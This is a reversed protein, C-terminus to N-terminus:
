RERLVEVRLNYKEFQGDSWEYPVKNESILDIIEVMLKITPIFNYRIEYENDEADIKLHALKEHRRKQKVGAIMKSFLKIKEEIDIKNPHANPIEPIAKKFSHVGKRDDDFKCIRILLDNEITKLCITQDVYNSRSMQSFNEFRLIRNFALQFRLLMLTEIKFADIHKTLTTRNM